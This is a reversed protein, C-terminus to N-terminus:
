EPEAPAADDTDFRSDFWRQVAEAEAVALNNRQIMVSRFFASAGDGAMELESRLCEVYAEMGEFYAQTDELARAADAETDAAGPLMVLPPHECDARAELAVAAALLAAMRALPKM